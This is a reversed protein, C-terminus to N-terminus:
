QQATCITCQHSIYCRDGTCYKSWNTKNVWLYQYGALLNEPASQRHPPYLFSCSGVIDRSNSYRSRFLRHSISILLSSMLLSTIVIGKASAKLTQICKCNNGSQATQRFDSLSSLQRLAMYLPIPLPIWIGSIYNCARRGKGAGSGSHWPLAQKCAPIDIAYGVLQQWYASCYAFWHTM